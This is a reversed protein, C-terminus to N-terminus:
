DETMEYLVALKKGGIIKAYHEKPAMYVTKTCNGNEQLKRVAGKIESIYPRCNRGALYHVMLHRSHPYVEYTTLLLCHCEPVGRLTWIDYDGRQLAEVFEQVTFDYIYLGSKRARDLYKVDQETMQNIPLEMFRPEPAATKALASVGNLVRSELPSTQFAFSNRVREELTLPREASKSSNQSDQEQTFQGM